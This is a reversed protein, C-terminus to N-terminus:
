LYHSNHHIISSKQRTAESVKKANRISAGFRCDMFINQKARRDEYQMRGPESGVLREYVSFSSSHLTNSTILFSNPSCSCDEPSLIAEFQRELGLLWGM